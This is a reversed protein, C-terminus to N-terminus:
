LFISLFPSTNVKLLRPIQVGGVGLVGVMCVSERLTDVAWFFLRSQSDLCFTSQTFLFEVRM